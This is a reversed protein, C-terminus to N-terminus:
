LCAAIIHDAQNVLQLLLSHFPISHTMVNVDLIRSDHAPQMVLLARQRVREDSYKTVGLANVFVNNRTNLLLRM